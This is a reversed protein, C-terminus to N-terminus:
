STLKCEVRIHLSSHNPYCQCALRYGEALQEPTLLSREAETIPSLAQAVQQPSLGETVIWPRVVDGGCIGHGGCRSGIGVELAQAHALLNLKPECFDTQARKMSTRDRFEITGM